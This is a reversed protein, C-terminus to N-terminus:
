RRKNAYESAFIERIEGLNKGVKRLNQIKEWTKLAKARNYVATKGIVRDPRFLGLQTYYILTSKKVEFLKSLELLTTWTTKNEM